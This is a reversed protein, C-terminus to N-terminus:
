NEPIYIINLDGDVFGIGAPVRKQVDNQTVYDSIMDTAFKEFTERTKADEDSTDVYFLEEESTWVEYCAWSDDVTDFRDSAIPQISYINDEEEYLNFNFAKTDAPIDTKELLGDLWERFSSYIEEYNKMYFVRRLNM